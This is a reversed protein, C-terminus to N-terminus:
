SVTSSAFVLVVDVPANYIRSEFEYILGGENQLSARSIDFGNQTGYIGTSSSGIFLNLVERALEIATSATAARCNITFPVSEIGTKRQGGGISFYNIAPFATGEPKMGHGIRTGVISTIASTQAMCYGIAQEPTV